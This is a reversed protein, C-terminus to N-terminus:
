EISAGLYMSSVVQGRITGAKDKSMRIAEPRVVAQVRRGVPARFSTSIDWRHGEFSLTLRDMGVDVIEVDLLNADGLFSAVFPSKPRLYLEEATGIQEIQGANMIVIRDSIAMAEEQDHTVYVATIKLEKQLRAIETRMQVRLQADLNSLPEDFLLVGPEIVIARALAVRQQQGGSLENIMRDGMGDLGVQTLAALM